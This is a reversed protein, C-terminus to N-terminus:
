PATGPRAAAIQEAGQQKRFRTEYKQVSRKIYDLHQPIALIEDDFVFSFDRIDGTRVGLVSRLNFTRWSDTIEKYEEESVRFPEWYLGTGMGGGAAGRQLIENLADPGPVISYYLAYPIDLIFRYVPNKKRWKWPM